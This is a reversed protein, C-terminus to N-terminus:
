KVMGGKAYDEKKRMEMEQRDKIWVKRRVVMHSTILGIIPGDSKITIRDSSIALRQSNKDANTDVAQRDKRGSAAGTTNTTEQCKAPYRFVSM